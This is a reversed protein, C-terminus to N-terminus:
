YEEPLLITTVSRDWETIVWVKLGSELAYVSFVRFGRELAMANEARDEEDLNGWDGTGHRALFEIPNQGSEEIAQLAGPTGVVLGLKFLPKQTEGNYPPTNEPNTNQQDQEKM